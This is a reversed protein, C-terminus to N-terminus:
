IRENSLGGSEQQFNQCSRRHQRLALGQQRSEPRELSRGARAYRDGGARRGGCRTGRGAGWLAACLGILICLLGFIDIFLDIIQENPAKFLSYGWFLIILGIFFLPMIKWKPNAQEYAKLPRQEDDRIQTELAILEMLKQKFGMEM